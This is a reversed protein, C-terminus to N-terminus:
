DDSDLKLHSFDCDDGFDDDTIISIMEQYQDAQNLMLAAMDFDNFFMTWRFGEYGKEYAFHKAPLIPYKQTYAELIRKNIQNTYSGSDQIYISQQTGSNKDFRMLFWQVTDGEISEKVLFILDPNQEMIKALHLSPGNKGGFSFEFSDTRVDERSADLGFFKAVATENAALATINLQYWVSM